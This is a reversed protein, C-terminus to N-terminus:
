LRALSSDQRVRVRELVDPDRTLSRLTSAITGLEIARGDAVAEVLINIDADLGLRDFRHDFDLKRGCDLTVAIAQFAKTVDEVRPSDTYNYSCAGQGGPGTYRLTKTGMDAVNKLATGCDTNFWNLARAGGFIRVVTAKSITVSRAIHQPAPAPTGAVPLFVADADYSGTGDQAIKLEFRPVALGAREFQFTIVAGPAPDQALLGSSASLFVASMLGFRRAASRFSGFSRIM